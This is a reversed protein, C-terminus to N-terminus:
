VLQETLLMDYDSLFVVHNYLNYQQIFVVWERILAKGSEDFPPAKGAIVLKVTHEPNTLIRIFRQPNHM